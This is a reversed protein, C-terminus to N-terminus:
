PFIDDWGKGSIKDCMSSMDELTQITGESYVMQKRTIDTGMDLQTGFAEQISRWFQSVFRGDVILSHDFCCELTEVGSRERIGKRLDYVKECVKALKKSEHHSGGYLKKLDPVNKIRIWPPDISQCQSEAVLGFCHLDETGFNEEKRAEVQANDPIRAPLMVEVNARERTTALESHLGCLM